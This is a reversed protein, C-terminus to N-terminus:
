LLEIFHASPVFYMCRARVHHRRRRRRRCAIKVNLSELCLLQGRQQSEPSFSLIFFLYYLM